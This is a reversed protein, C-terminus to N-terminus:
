ITRFDGDGCGLDCVVRPVAEKLALEANASLDLRMLAAAARLTAAPTEIYPATSSSFGFPIYDLDHFAFMPSGDENEMAEVPRFPSGFNNPSQHPIFSAPKEHDM